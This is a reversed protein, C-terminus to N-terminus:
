SVVFRDVIALDLVGARWAPWPGLEVARSFEEASRFYIEMKYQPRLNGTENLAVNSPMYIAQAM